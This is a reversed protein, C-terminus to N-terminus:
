AASAIRQQELEGVLRRIEDASAGAITAANIRDIEHEPWASLREGVKVPKPMRGDRIRNYFSARSLRTAATAKKLPLLTIM